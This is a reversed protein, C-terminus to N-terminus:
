KREFSLGGLATDVFKLQLLDSTFIKPKALWITEIFLQEGRDNYCLLLWLYYTFLHAHIHELLVKNITM